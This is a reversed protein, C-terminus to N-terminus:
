QTRRKFIIIAVIVGGLVLGGGLLLFDFEEALAPNEQQEPYAVGFSLTDVLCEYNGFIDEVKIDVTYNGSVFSDLYTIYRTSTNQELIATRYCESSDRIGTESDITFFSANISSIGSAENIKVYLWSDNDPTLDSPDLWILEMDPADEEYVGLASAIAECMELKYLSSSM